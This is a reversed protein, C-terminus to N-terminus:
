GSFDKTHICANYGNVHNFDADAYWLLFLKFITVQSFRAHEFAFFVLFYVLFGMLFLCMHGLKLDPECNKKVQEVLIEEASYYM